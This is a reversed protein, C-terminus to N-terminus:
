VFCYGSDCGDFLSPRDANLEMQEIADMLPIRKDTLFFEGDFQAEFQAAAEVTEPSSRLWRAANKHPCFDCETSILHPVGFSEIEQICDQKYFRKELMVLPYAQQCWRVDSEKMRHAEEVTIGLNCIATKAGLRRLQQRIAAVKWKSTCSQRLRGGNSGFLPLDIGNYDDTYTQAAMIDPLPTKNKDVARVFYATMGFEAALPKTVEEFYERATSRRGTSWLMDNENGTDAVIVVTAPFLKYHGAALILFTSPAGQGCSISNIHRMAGDDVGVASAM